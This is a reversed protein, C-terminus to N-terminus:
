GRLPILAGNVSAGQESLLWAITDAVRALPVLTRPDMSQRNLPTDLTTPLLANATIGTGAVENALSQIFANVAAKSVTYAAMGPPQSLSAAASITVIRGGGQAKLHPLVAAACNVTTTLNIALLRGWTAQDTAEVSGMAFGGVLHVLGAIAGEQAVRDVAARVSAEDSLDVGQDLSLVVCDYSESLRAVVVSGLNGTGGTVILRPKQM